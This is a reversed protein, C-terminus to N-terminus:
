YGGYYGPGGSSPGAAAYTAGPPAYMPPQADAQQRRIRQTVAELKNGVTKRLFTFELETIVGRRGDMIQRHVLERGSANLRGRPVLSIEYSIYDAVLSPSEPVRPDHVPSATLLAKADLRISYGLGELPGVYRRLATEMALQETNVANTGIVLNAPTDPGGDGDGILHCWEHSALHEGVSGKHGQGGMMEHAQRGGMAAAPSRKGDRRNVQPPASLKAAEKLVYPSSRPNRDAHEAAADFTGAGLFRRGNGQFHPDHRGAEAYFAFPQDPDSPLRTFYREEDAMLCDEMRLGHAAALAAARDMTTRDRRGWYQENPSWREQYRFTRGQSHATDRQKTTRRLVRFRARQHTDILTDSHEAGPDNVLEVRYAFRGSQYVLPWHDRPGPNHHSVNPLTQGPVQMIDIDGPQPTLYAYRPVQPESGDTGFTEAPVYLAPLLQMQEIQEEALRIRPDDPAARRSGRTSRGSYMRQAVVGGAPTHAHGGADAAAAGAQGAPLSLARGANAEAEREFRDSPDSVSVGDGRDTGAVPGRRQQIVHTLEHALTHRDLAGEGLVIHSGSTYARAGMEAASRQAVAGSHVRVDSFDAGLRAEMDARTSEDLPRGAQGLVEHVASRQVPHHEHSPDHAEHEEERLARAMAANGAARQLALAQPASMAGLRGPLLAPSGAM